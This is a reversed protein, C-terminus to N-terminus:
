TKLARLQVLVSKYDVLVGKCWGFEYGTGPGIHSQSTPLRYSLAKPELVKVGWLGFKPRSFRLISLDFEKSPSFLISNFLLLSVFKFIFMLHKCRIFFPEELSFNCIAISSYLLHLTSKSTSLLCYISILYFDLSNL